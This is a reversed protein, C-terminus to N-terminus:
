PKDTPLSLATEADKWVGVGVGSGEESSLVGPGKDPLQWRSSINIQRHKEGLSVWCGVSFMFRQMKDWYCCVSNNKGQKSGVFMQFFHCETQQRIKVTGQPGSNADEAQGTKKHWRTYLSLFTEVWPLTGRLNLSGSQIKWADIWVSPCKCAYSTNKFLTAHPAGPHSLQNLTQRWILDIGLDQSQVGHRAGWEIPLWSRGRGRGKNM